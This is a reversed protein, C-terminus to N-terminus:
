VGCAAQAAGAIAGLGTGVLILTWEDEEFVPHLVREFEASSLQWFLSIRLFTRLPPPACARTVLMSMCRIMLLVHGHAICGHAICGHAIGLAGFVLLRWRRRAMCLPGYEAAASCRNALLGSPPM